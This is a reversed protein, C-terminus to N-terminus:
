GADRFHRALKAMRIDIDHRLITGLPMPPRGIGKKPYFLEVLSELRSWSFFIEMEALFVGKRPPDGGKPLFRTEALNVQKMTKMAVNIPLRSLPEIKKLGAACPDRICSNGLTLPVTLACGTM